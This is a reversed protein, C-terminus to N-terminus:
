STQSTVDKEEPNYHHVSAGNCLCVRRRLEEVQLPMEILHTNLCTQGLMHWYFYVNQHDIYQDHTSRISDDGKTETSILVSDIGSNNHLVKPTYSSYNKLHLCSPINSWNYWFYTPHHRECDRQSMQLHLFWMNKDSHTKVVTIPFELCIM